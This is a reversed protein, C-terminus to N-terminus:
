AVQARATEVAMRAEALQANNTELGSRAEAVQANAQNVQVQYDSQRVRALVTGKFVIDGAQVPRPQGAEDRVQAIWDVYGGVKFSLEVQSNAKISASYRVSSTGSRMEVAKAKVPVPPKEKTKGTSCGALTMCLSILATINLMSKTKM